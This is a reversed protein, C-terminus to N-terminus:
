KTGRVVIQSRIPLVFTPLSFPEIVVRRFGADGLLRPTERCLECGDFLRRWVGALRMQRRRGVSGIAEPVHEIALFRGGPRLVRLIERLAAEPDRVSCLVLTGIVVDVSDDPQPLQEAAGAPCTLHIGRRHAERALVPHAYRNPEIAVVRSGPRYYRLNAGHGPGLELIEGPLGAFLVRKIPQYGRDFHRDVLRAVAVAFWQRWM